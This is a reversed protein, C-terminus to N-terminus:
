VEKSLIITYMTYSIICVLTQKRRPCTQIKASQQRDRTTYMCACLMLTLRTKALFWTCHRITVYLMNLPHFRPCVCLCKTLLLHFWTNLHTTGFMNDFWFLITHHNMCNLIKKRCQLTLWQLSAPRSEDTRAVPPTLSDSSLSGWIYRLAWRHKHFMWIWAFTRPFTLAHVPCPFVVM